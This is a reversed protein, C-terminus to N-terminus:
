AAGSEEEWHNTRREAEADQADRLDGDLFHDGRHLGRPPALDHRNRRTVFAM